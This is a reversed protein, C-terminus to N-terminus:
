NPKYKTFDLNDLYINHVTLDHDFIVNFNKKSNKEQYYVSNNNRLFMMPNKDADCKKNTEIISNSQLNILFVNKNPLNNIGNIGGFLIIDEDKKISCHGYLSISINRSGRINFLEWISQREMNMREISDLCKNSPGNFGYIAYLYKNDIAIYSCSSREFIMEYLEQWSDNFKKFAFDNSKMSLLENNIYKEVKKNYLGSLCYLSNNHLVLSGSTHNFNLKKLKSMSHKKDNYLYLLDHNHGTIIFFSNDCTLCFSGELQFNEEYDGFDAFEIFKFTREEIDFKLLRKSDYISLLIVNGQSITIKESNYKQTIKLNLQSTSMAAKEESETKHILLNNPNEKSEESKLRLNNFEFENININDINSEISLNSCVDPQIENNNNGSRNKDLLSYKELLNKYIFAIKDYANKMDYYDKQYNNCKNIIEQFNFNFDDQNKIKDHHKKDDKENKLMLKKQEELLDTKEMLLLKLKENERKSNALSENFEKIDTNFSDIMKAKYRLDNRSDDLEIRLKNEVDTLLNIQKKLDDVTREYIIIEEDKKKTIANMKNKLDSVLNNLTDIHIDKSNLESKFKDLEKKLKIENLKFENIKDDNGNNKKSNEFSLLSFREKLILLEENLEEKSKIFTELTKDKFNLKSNLTEVENKLIMDNRYMQNYINNIENIKGELQSITKENNNKEEFLKTNEKLVEKLRDNILQNQLALTEREDYIRGEKLRLDNLDSELSSIKYVLIEKLSLLDDYKKKLDSNEVEYKESSKILLSKCSMGDNNMKKYKEITENTEELNRNLMTVSNKINIITNEKDEVIKSFSEIKIKGKEIESNLNRIVNYNELITNEKSNLVEKLSLIEQKIFDIENSLEINKSEMENVAQNKFEIIEQQEIVTKNLNQISVDNNCNSKKIIELTKKVGFLMDEYDKLSKKLNENLSSSSMIKETQESIFRDKEM